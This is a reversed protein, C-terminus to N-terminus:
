TKLIETHRKSEYFHESLRDIETQKADL